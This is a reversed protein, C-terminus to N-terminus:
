SSIFHWSAVGLGNCQWSGRRLRCVLKVVVLEVKRRGVRMARRCTHWRCVVQRGLGFGIGGTDPLM